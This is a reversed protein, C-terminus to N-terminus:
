AAMRLKQMPTIGGIGMNPRENNYTWLWKTAYDQVEQISEFMYHSLWDYRVTRNFREVYANQQPNGPQIYELRIKEKEAWLLLRNSIYEPGNDCRIAEPKGRWEIIQNLTRVVRDAPLSLDVEISLGERNFDDIVNLLRFSRGDELQDHMFDMSWVQNASEPQSLPEPKERVLRKKPKIRMNLELERYIRYVRKHNWSFGQVNRLYLFCLGFGWNRQNHTLRVLWDAVLENEASLKPEYRYCTQSISFAECAQRINVKEEKVAAKAMKRRCSPKVVKKGLAEKVIEAKLREEAYMKKLQRNERELEKMRAMLSADMGGYKSRWKYFTASSMGHERCLEAVPVGNEAQKLISLIQSDSYRSKKM